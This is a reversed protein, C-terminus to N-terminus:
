RLLRKLLKRGEDAVSPEGGKKKSKELLGGLTKKGLGKAAGAGLRKAITDTEPRASVEPLVGSIKVPIAIRKDERRLHKLPKARDILDRSLANSLVVRTSLDLDGDLSVSGQGRLGYDKADVKIGAIHVKGDRVEVKADVRDFETSGSSFISPYKERMEEPLRVSLGPVGTLGALAEEVLNIDHLTCGEIQATGVGELGPKIEEWTKGTGAVTLRMSLRGDLVRAAEEALAQSVEGLEIGNVATDLDLRGERGWGGDIEITGGFAEILLDATPDEINVIRGSAHVKVADVELDAGHIDLDRNALAVDFGLRLPVGREKQRDEGYPVLADTADVDFELKPSEVSGTVRAALTMTGSPSPGVAMADGLGPLSQLASVDIPDVSLHVDLHTSSSPASPLPGVVGRLRVNSEGGGLFEGMFQFDLPRTMGVDTTWFELQDLVVERQPESTQDVYRLRGSRIEAMAVVFAGVASTTAPDEQEAESPAGLSDTSLGTEGQIVTLSVQRLSVKTVEVRGFLAPWVAVRVEAEGVSLFDGDGFREDERVRFGDVEVALGRGLSLGVADFGVPRNLAQEVQKAIWDKNDNLYSNLNSAAVALFAVVLVVLFVFVGILKRLRVGM